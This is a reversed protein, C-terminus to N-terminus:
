QIDFVKRRHEEPIVRKLTVRLLGDIYTVEDIITDESLQWNRSFSRQAIGRHVYDGETEYTKNVSINLINKEVAVEIDDKLFGALALQLQQRENDLKLINYPPYNSQPNAALADLTKWMDEFGISIPAYQEWRTLNNMAGQLALKRTHVGFADKTNFPNRHFRM